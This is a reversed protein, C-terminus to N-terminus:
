PLQERNKSQYDYVITDPLVNWYEKMACGISLHFSLDDYCIICKLFYNM